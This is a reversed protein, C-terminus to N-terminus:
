LTWLYIRMYKYVITAITLSFVFFKDHAYKYQRGQGGHRGQDCDFPFFRTKFM